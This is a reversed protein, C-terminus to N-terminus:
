LYKAREDEATCSYHLIANMKVKYVYLIHVRTLYKDVTNVNTFTLILMFIIKYM